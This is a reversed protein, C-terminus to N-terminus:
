LIEVFEAEPQISHIFAVNLEIPSICALNPFDYTMRMRLSCKDYTKIYCIYFLLIKLTVLLYSGVYEWSNDRNKVAKLFFAVM